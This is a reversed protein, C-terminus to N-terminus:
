VVHGSMQFVRVKGEEGGSFLMDGDWELDLIKKGEEETGKITHLPTSSRIDWVKIKSDYSASALSYQSAPSWSVSSVWGKHSSLKMKVVLGKQDRPDWLRVVNDSHGSAILGSHPSYDLDLVVKECGMTYTNNSSEVDWVRVSHDYGGSFVLGASKEDKGFNVCTVAGVHAELSATPRKKPVPRDTLRKRKGSQLAQHDQTEDEDEELAANWIKITADWSATAFLTKDMNVSISDISGAHGRCEYLARHKGNEQVEWAYVVEDNGGSLLTSTPSDESRSLWAVSKVPGDHLTLTAVPGLSMNWLNVQGNYGGTAIMSTKGPGAVAAVWDDHDLTAKPEPPMTSEVYEVDLVNETSLNYKELYEGLSTRLFKGDIIFDFPIQRAYRRLKTPILIASDTVEYQPQRTRFRVQVQPDTTTTLTSSSPTTM